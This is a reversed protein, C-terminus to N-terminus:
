PGSFPHTSLPQCACMSRQQAVGAATQLNFMNSVVVGAQKWAEVTDLGCVYEGSHREAHSTRRAACTPAAHAPCHCCRVPLVPSAPPHSCPSLTHSSRSHSHLVHCCRGCTCPAAASPPGWSSVPSPSTCAALNTTPSSPSTSNCRVTTTSLKSHLSFQVGAPAQLAHTGEAYAVLAYCATNAIIVEDRSHTPQAQGEHGMDM